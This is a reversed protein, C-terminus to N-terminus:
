AISDSFGHMALNLCVQDLVIHNKPGRKVNWRHRISVRGFLGHIGTGEATEVQSLKFNQLLVKQDLDVGTVALYEDVFCQLRRCGM